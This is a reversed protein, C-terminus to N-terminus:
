LNIIFGEILYIIYDTYVILCYYDALDELGIQIIYLLKNIKIVFLSLLYLFVPFFAQLHFANMKNSDLYKQCISPDFLPTTDSFTDIGWKTTM